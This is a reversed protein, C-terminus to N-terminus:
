RYYELYFKAGPAPLIRHTVLPEIVGPRDPTLTVSENTAPVEYRVEGQQVVIKAWVGSRVRHDNKMLGPTTKDTYVQTKQYARVTSPIEGMVNGKNTERLAKAWIRGLEDAVM